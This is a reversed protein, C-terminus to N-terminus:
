FLVQNQLSEDDDSLGDDLENLMLVSANSYISSRSAREAYPNAKFFSGHSSRSVKSFRNGLDKSFPNLNTATRRRDNKNEEVEENTDM